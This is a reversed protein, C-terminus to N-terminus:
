AAKLRAIARDVEPRFLDALQKNKRNRNRGSIFLVIIGIIGLGYFCIGFISAIWALPLLGPAPKMALNQIAADFKTIIDTTHNYIALYPGRDAGPPIGWIVTVRHGKRIALGADVAEVAMEQGSENKLFFQDHTHSVSSITVPNNQGSGVNYGGGGGSVQTTSWKKEDVVEGTFAHLAIIRDGVTVSQILAM